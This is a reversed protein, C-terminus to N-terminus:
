TAEMDPYSIGWAFGVSMDHRPSLLGMQNTNFMIVKGTRRYPHIVLDKVNLPFCPIFLHKLNSHQPLCESRLLPYHRYVTYFERVLLKM